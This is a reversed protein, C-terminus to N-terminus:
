DAASRRALLRYGYVWPRAVAPGPLYRETRDVIELGARELLAVPDRTLHCGGAVRKEIPDL